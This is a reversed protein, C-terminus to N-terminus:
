YLFPAISNNIYAGNNIADMARTDLRPMTLGYVNGPQFPFAPGPMAGYWSPAPPYGGPMRYAGPAMGSAPPYAAPGTLGQTDLEGWTTEPPEATQQPPPTWQPAPWGATEGYDAMTDGTGATASELQRLEQESIYREAPAQQYVPAPAQTGAGPHIQSSPPAWPNALAPQVLMATALVPLVMGCQCARSDSHKQESCVTVMTSVM